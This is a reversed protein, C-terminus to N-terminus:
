VRKELRKVRRPRRDCNEIRFRFARWDRRGRTFSTDRRRRCPHDDHEHRLSGYNLKGGFERVTRRLTGCFRKRGAIARYPLVPRATACFVHM